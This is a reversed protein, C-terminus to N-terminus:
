ALGHTLRLYSIVSEMEKIQIYAHLKVGDLLFVESTDLTSDYIRTDSGIWVQYRVIVRDLSYGYTLLENRNM